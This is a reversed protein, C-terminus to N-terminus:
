FQKPAHQGIVRGDVSFDRNSRTGDPPSASAECFAQGGGALQRMARGAPVVGDALGDELGNKVGTEHEHGHRCRVSLADLRANHLLADKRAGAGHADLGTGPQAAERAREQIRSQLFAAFSPLVQTREAEAPLALCFASAPNM